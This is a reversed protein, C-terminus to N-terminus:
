FRFYFFIQYTSLQSTIVCIHFTLMRWEPFSTKNTWNKADTKLNLMKLTEGWFYKLDFGERGKEIWGGALFPLFFLKGGSLQLLLNDDWTPAATFSMCILKTARKKRKNTKGRRAFTQLRHALRAALRTSHLKLAAPPAADAVIIHLHLASFMQGVQFHRQRSAWCKVDM